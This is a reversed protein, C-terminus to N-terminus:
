DFVDRFPDLLRIVSDNNTQVSEYYRMCSVNHHCNTATIWDIKDRNIQLRQAEM